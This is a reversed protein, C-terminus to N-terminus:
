PALRGRASELRALVADRGLVEMSEFLPPGVRRGTVAVRIPAQAKGLKRGVRDALAQTTSHLAEASWEVDRFDEVAGELIAAAGDDGAVPTWADDDIVPEALFLFAIMAPVEGLVTVREQVLPAMRRFVDEDYREAPWPAAPGHTWPVCADVFEDVSM